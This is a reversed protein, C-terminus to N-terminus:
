PFTCFSNKPSKIKIKLSCNYFAKMALNNEQLKGLPVYISSFLTEILITTQMLTHFKTKYSM